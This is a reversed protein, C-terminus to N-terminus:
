CVFLIPAPLKQYASWMATNFATQATAHNSSADGFLGATAPTAADLGASAVESSVIQHRVLDARQKRAAGCGGLM